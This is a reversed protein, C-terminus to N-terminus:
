RITVDFILFTISMYQQNQYIFRLIDSIEFLNHSYVLPINRVIWDLGIWDLGIWDVGAKCTSVSLMTNEFCWNKILNKMFFLITVLSTTEIM